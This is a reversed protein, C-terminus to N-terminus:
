CMSNWGTLATYDPQIPVFPGDQTRREVGIIPMVCDYRLLSTATTRNILYFNVAVVFAITLIPSTRLLQSENGITM